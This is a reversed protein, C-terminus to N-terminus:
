MVGITSNSAEDSDDHVVPCTIETLPPYRWARVGRGPLAGNRDSFPM